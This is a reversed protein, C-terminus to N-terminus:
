VLEQIDAHKACDAIVKRASTITMKHRRLLAERLEMDDPLDPDAGDDIRTIQARAQDIREQMTTITDSWSM